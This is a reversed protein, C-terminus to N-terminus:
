EDELEIIEYGREKLDEVSHYPMGHAQTAALLKVWAEQETKSELDACVSGAPTAPWYIKKTM